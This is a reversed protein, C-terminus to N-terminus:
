EVFTGGMVIELLMCRMPLLDLEKGFGFENCRDEKAKSFDIIESVDEGLLFSDKSLKGHIIGANHLDGVRKIMVKFKKLIGLSDDDTKQFYASARENFLQKFVYAESEGKNNITLALDAKYNSIKKMIRCENVAFKIQDDYNSGVVFQRLTVDYAVTVTRDNESEASLDWNNETDLIFSKGETSKVVTFPLVNESSLQSGPKILEETNARNNLFKLNGLNKKVYSAFEIVAAKPSTDKLAIIEPLTKARFINFRAFTDSISNGSIDATTGTNDEEVSCAVVSSNKKESFAPICSRFSRLAISFCM